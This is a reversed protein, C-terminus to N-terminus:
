IGSPTASGRARRLVSSPVAIPLRLPKRRTILGAKLIRYQVNRLILGRFQPVSVSLDNGFDAQYWVTVAAKRQGDGEIDSYSAQVRVSGLPDHLLRM